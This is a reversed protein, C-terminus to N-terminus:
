LPPLSCIETIKKWNFSVDPTGNTKVTLGCSNWLIFEYKLFGVSSTTGVMRGPNSKIMGKREYEDFMIQIIERINKEGRYKNCLGDIDFILELQHGTILVTNIFYDQFLKSKPGNTLGLHYLKFGEETMNGTSDIVGLHKLFTVFNKRISNYYNDGAHGSDIDTKLKSIADDKLSGSLQKIANIKKEGFLINKRGSLTKISDGSTDKIEASALNVIARAPFLHNNWCYVFADGSISGTKKLYYCHLLLHFLPVPLDQHKAWFRQSGLPKFETRQSLSSVNHILTVDEANDNDYVILGIPLADKVQKAYLDTMYADLKFDELKKPIVLFSVNSGKLYAISQGLGTLIGRKTETPPKFEFSVMLKEEDDYFAADPSPFASDCGVRYFNPGVNGCCKWEGSKFKALVSDTAAKALMHHNISM